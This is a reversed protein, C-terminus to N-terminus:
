LARAHSKFTSEMFYLIELWVLMKVEAKFLHAIVISEPDTQVM